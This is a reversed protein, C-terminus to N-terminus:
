EARVLYMLSSIDSSLPKRMKFFNAECPVATVNGTILKTM